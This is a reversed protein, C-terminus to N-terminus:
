LGWPGLFEYKLLFLEFFHCPHPREGKGGGNAMKCNIYGQLHLPLALLQPSMLFRLLRTLQGIGSPNFISNFYPHAEAWIRVCKPSGWFTLLGGSIFGFSCWGPLSEIETIVLKLGQTWAVWTITIVQLWGSLFFLMKWFHLGIM